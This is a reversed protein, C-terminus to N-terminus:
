IKFGIFFIKDNINNTFYQEIIDWTLKTIGQINKLIFDNVDKVEGDCKYDKLFKVWNFVYSNHKLLKRARVRGSEDNDLMFYKHPFKDLGEGKLKLGTVAVSNDVFVSDIPGELIIVPLSVDVNYYNYISNHNGYRSLYKMGSNNNFKRGQYYYVKGKDNLFTIIIRGSYKGDVAYKWKKYVSSPILRDECFKVADPYKIIPKFYKVDAKEDHDKYVKQSKINNYVHKTDKRDKRDRMSDRIFGTYNSPYYEKMWTIVSMSANCNHCYYIWPTKSKLIYARKKFRDKKSDGCVNCRFNFSEHSEFVDTFYSNLVIKVHRELNYEDIEFAM